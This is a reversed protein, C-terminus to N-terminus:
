LKKGLRLSSRILVIIIVISKKVAITPGQLDDAHVNEIQATTNWEVLNCTVAEEKGTKLKFTHVSIVVISKKVPIKLVQLDDAHM